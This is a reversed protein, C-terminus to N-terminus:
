YLGIKVGININLGSMDENTVNTKSVHLSNENLDWAYRYSLGLVLRTNKRLNLELNAGPEVFYFSEGTTNLFNDFLSTKGNEYDKTSAASVLVQASVHVLSNPKYTYQTIFGFYSYNITPHGFNAGVSLGFLTRNNILAGGYFGMLSGTKNQISNFKVESGWVYGINMDPGFLTKTSDSQAKSYNSVLVLLASAILVRNLLNVRLRRTQKKILTKM